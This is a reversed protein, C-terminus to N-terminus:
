VPSVLYTSPSKHLNNKILCINISKLISQKTDKYSDEVKELLSDPYKDKYYEILNKYSEEAAKKNSYYEKVRYFGANMDYATLVYINKM